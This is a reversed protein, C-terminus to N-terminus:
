RRLVGTPNMGTPGYSMLGGSEVLDARTTIMPLRNKIALDAIRKQNSITLPGQTVAVASSRAQIADKFAREYKDTSTVEM